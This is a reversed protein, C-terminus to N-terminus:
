ALPYTARLADRRAAKEAAWEDAWSVNAFHGVRATSHRWSLGHTKMVQTFLGLTDWWLAGRVCQTMAPSLGILEVARQLGDSNRLLVCYPHLRDGYNFSFEDAPTWWDEAISNRFNVRVLREPLPEGRFEFVVGNEDCQQAQVAFLTPDAALEARMTDITDDSLFFADADLLLYEDADPRKLIADRLIEGHTNLPVNTGYGTPEITIGYDGTWSLLDLDPSASDLVVIQLEDRQQHRTILSRLMLDMYATSRHNVSLALVTM